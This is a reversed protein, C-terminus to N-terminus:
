LRRAQRAQNYDEDIQQQSSMAYVTPGIQMCNNPCFFSVTTIANVEIMKQDCV